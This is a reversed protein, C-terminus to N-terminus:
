IPFVGIIRQGVIPQAAQKPLSRNHPLSDALSMLTWENSPTAAFTMPKLEKVIKNCQNPRRLLFCWTWTHRKPIPSAPRLIFSSEHQSISSPKIFAFFSANDPEATSMWLFMSTWDARLTEVQRGAASCVM